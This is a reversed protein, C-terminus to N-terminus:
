PRGFLNESLDWFLDIEWEQVQSADQTEPERQLPDDAYFRPAAGRPASPLLLAGAASLLVCLMLRSRTNM